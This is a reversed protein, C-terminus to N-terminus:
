VPEPPSDSLIEEQILKLLKKFDYPKKVFCLAKKLIEDTDPDNPSYGSCIIVKADPNIELINKLCNRGGMGPMILDLIVVSITDMKEKYIALGSEGNEAITVHYGIDSLFERALERLSEEDDIFLITEGRGKAASFFEEEEYEAERVAALNIAPFYINFSSGIGPQSDCFIQGGHSQIIGYAMALGLGTGKGAEKTTFFPEFIHELTKETMGQGSDAITLLVYEKTGDNSLLKHCVDAGKVNVTRFILRGGDPMADRANVGINLLVQEVQVPDVNVTHVSRELDLEIEIMKPITRQLLKEVQHIIHNLNVPRPHIEVKRSFTLLQATLESARQAAKRIAEMKPYNLSTRDEDLLLMQSYGIIAQLLNNFDHSIGGALTGIAEMKQAQLLQAELQKISSIDRAFGCIGNIQGTKGMLPVKITHFTQPPPGKIKLEEEVIQGQLVQKELKQTKVADLGGFLEEDTHGMFAASDMKYLGEMVPNVLTYRLNVDKLFIADQASEFITRFRQESEKLREEAVRKEERIQLTEFIRELLNILEMPRVPKQLYHFAGRELATVASDVDAFATMLACICDPNTKKLKALLNIGTDDPLKLDLLAVQPRHEHAVSLANVCTNATVLEYGEDTLIDEWNDALAEDDDVVMIKKVM